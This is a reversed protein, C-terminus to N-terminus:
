WDTDELTLRLVEGAGFRISEDVLAHGSRAQRYRHTTRAYHQRSTVIFNDIAALTLCAVQKHSAKLFTLLQSVHALKKKITVGPSGKYQRLHEAFEPLCYQSIGQKDKNIQWPPLEVNPM